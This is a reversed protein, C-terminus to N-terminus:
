AAARDAQRPMIVFVTTGEGPKSALKLEAKQDTLIKRALTLGLGVGEITRTRLAETQSFPEFAAAIQRESMGCGNDAITFVYAGNQSLKGSLRVVGGPKSAKVANEVLHTMAYVTNAFDIHLRAREVVDTELTVGAASASKACQGCLADVLDPASVDEYDYKVKGATADAYRLMKAIRDLLGHASSHIHDLFERTEGVAGHAGRGRVIEAFGIIQHLPTRLEHSLLSLFNLKSQDAATAEILLEEIFTADLERQRNRFYLLRARIEQAYMTALAIATITVIFFLGSAVEQSAKPSIVTIVAIYAGATIIFVLAALWFHIRQVCAFFILVNLIGIIYPPAGSAPLVSIMWVMSLSGTLMTLATMWQFHRCFPKMGALAVLLLGVPGCLGLRVFLVQGLNDRFTIIDLIGFIYYIIVGLVTVAREKSLEHDVLHRQYATEMDRDAFEARSWRIHDRDAGFFADAASARFSHRIM